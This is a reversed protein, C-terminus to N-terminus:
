LEEPTAIPPAFRTSPNGLRTARHQETQEWACLVWHDWSPFPAGGVLMEHPRSEFFAPRFALEYNRWYGLSSVSVGAWSSTM